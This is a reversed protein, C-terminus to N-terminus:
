YTDDGVAREVTVSQLIYWTWVVCVHDSSGQDNITIALRTMLKILLPMRRPWCRCSKRSDYGASSNKHSGRLSHSRRRISSRQLRSITRNPHIRRRRIYLSSAREGIDPLRRPYEGVHLKPRATPPALCHLLGSVAM